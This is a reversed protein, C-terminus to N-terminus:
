RARLCDSCAVPDHPRDRAPQHAASGLLLQAGLEVGDVQGPQLGTLGLSNMLPLVPQSRAGVAGVELRDRSLGQVSDPPVGSPRARSAVRKVSPRLRPIRTEHRNCFRNEAEAAQDDCQHDRDRDCDGDKDAVRDPLQSLRLAPFLLLRLAPRPPRPALNLLRLHHKEAYAETMNVPMTRSRALTSDKSRPRSMTAVARSGAIPSEIATSPTQRVTASRGLPESTKSTIGSVCARALGNPASTLRSAATL